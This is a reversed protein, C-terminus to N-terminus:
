AGGSAEELVASVLSEPLPRSWEPGAVAGIRQLLVFRVNGGRAKKDRALRKMVSGPAEPVRALAGLGFARLAEELRRATGVETVGAREGLRAELVM